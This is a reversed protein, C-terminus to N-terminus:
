DARPEYEWEDDFTISEIKKQVGAQAQEVMDEVSEIGIGNAKAIDWILRMEAPEITGDEVRELLVKLQEMHLKAVLDRHAERDILRKKKTM